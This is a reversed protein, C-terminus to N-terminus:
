IVCPGIKKRNFSPQYPTDDVSQLLHFTFIWGRHLMLHAPLVVSSYIVESGTLSSKARWGGEFDRMWACGDKCCTLLVRSDRQTVLSRQDYSDHEKGGSERKKRGLHPGQFPLKNFASSSSHSDQGSLNFHYVQLGLSWENYPYKIPENYMHEAESAATADATDKVGAGLQHTWRVPSSSDNCTLFIIMHETICRFPLM